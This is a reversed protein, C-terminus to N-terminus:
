PTVNLKCMEQDLVAGVRCGLILIPPSRQM